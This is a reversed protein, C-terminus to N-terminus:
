SPNTLAEVHKEDAAATGKKLKLNVFVLCVYSEFNPISVSFTVKSFHYSIPLSTVNQQTTDGVNM